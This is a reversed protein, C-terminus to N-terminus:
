LTILETKKGEEKNVFKVIQRKCPSKNMGKTAFM